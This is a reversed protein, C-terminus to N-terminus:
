APQSGLTVATMEGIPTWGSLGSSGKIMIQAWKELPYRQQDLYQSPMRYATIFIIAAPPNAHKSILAWETDPNCLPEPCNRNSRPDTRRFGMERQLDEEFFQWEGPLGLTLGLAPNEYVSPNNFHGKLDGPEFAFNVQINILVAVPQGDKTAP